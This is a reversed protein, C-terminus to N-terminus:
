TTIEVATLTGDDAVTIKFQKTSGETSSTLILEKPAITDPLFKPDLKKITALPAVLDIKMGTYGMREFTDALAYIGKKPIVTVDAGNLTVSFNDTPICMLIGAGAMIVGSSAMVGDPGSAAYTGEYAVGDANFLMFSSGILDNPDSVVIDSVHLVKVGALDTISEDDASYTFEITDVTEEGVPANEIRDWSVPTEPLFKPDIKKLETKTVTLVGTYGAVYAFNPIYITYMGKKPFTVVNGNIDLTIEDKPVSWLMAGMSVVEGQETAFTLIDNETVTGEKSEGNMAEYITITDGIADNKDNLVADSLHVMMGSGAPVTVRDGVVGDWEITMEETVVESKEYALPEPLFKPDIKSKKTESIFSATLKSVHLAGPAYGLYVGKKPFVPNGVTNAFQYNDEPVSMVFCEGLVVSSGDIAFMNEVIPMDQTMGDATTFTAVTGDFFKPDIIDDSVQALMFQGVPGVVEKDGVVGDWEITKVSTLIESKESLIPLYKEDIKKVVTRTKTETTTVTQTLTGTYKGCYSSTEPIYAFYLGKKPVTAELEGEKVVYNDNPVSFVVTGAVILDGIAMMQNPQTLTDELTLTEGQYMAVTAGVVAELNPIVADSVHVYVTGAFDATIRDGVVGDWEVTM